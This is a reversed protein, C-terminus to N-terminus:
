QESRAKKHKNSTERMIDACVFRAERRQISEIYAKKIDEASLGFKLMTNEDLMMM